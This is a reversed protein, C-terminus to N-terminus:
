TKNDNSNITNSSSSDTGRYDPLLDKVKLRMEALRKEREREKKTEAPFQRWIIFTNKLIRKVNHEKAIDDLRWLRIIETQTYDQWIKFTNIMLRNMYHREAREDAIETQQKYRQWSTFYRRYLLHTYFEIARRTKIEMDQRITEYWINFTYQAIKYNHHEEATQMQQQRILILKKLPNFGYYRMRFIRCHNDAKETLIQLRQEFRKREIEREKDLRQKERAEEIKLRKEEEEQRMKEDMLQQVRALKEEEVARRKADRETKIEYRKRAREEMNLLLTESRTSPRDSVTPQDFRSTNLQKQLDGRNHAQILATAHRRDTVLQKRQKDEMETQQAKLTELNSLQNHIVKQDQQYKLEEIMRQQDKLLRNQEKLMKMQANYRNEFTSMVRSASKHEAMDQRIRKERQKKKSLDEDSSSLEDFDLHMRRTDTTTVPLGINLSPQQEEEQENHSASSTQFFDDLKIDSQTRTTLSSKDGFRVASRPRSTLSSPRPVIPVKRVKVQKSQQRTTTTTPPLPTTIITQQQQQENGWLKGTSAADLFSDIKRKTTEQEHKLNSAIRENRLYIQWTIMSKRLLTREYHSSAQQMKMSFIKMEAMHAETEEELKKTRVMSKWWNFSQFLLKWDALAAARGMQLRRELVVNLWASFHKQIITLSKMRIFDDVLTQLRKENHDNQEKIALEKLKHLEEEKRSREQEAKTRESKAHEYERHHKRQEEDQLRKENMEKRIEMVHREIMEEEQKAKLAREREEKLIVLRAQAEAEKKAQVQKRKSDREKQMREHNEKVQRHREEIKTQIDITAPKTQEMAYLQQRTLVEKSRLDHLIDKVLDSEDHTEYYVSPDKFTFIDKPERLFELQDDEDFSLNCAQKVSRVNAQVIDDDDSDNLGAELRLKDNMWEDLIERAETYTTDTAQNALIKSTKRSSSRPFVSEVANSSANEVQRLWNKIDDNKAPKSPQDLTSQRKEWRYLSKHSPAADNM